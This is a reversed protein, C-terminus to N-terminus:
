RADIGSRAMYLLDNISIIKLLNKQELDQAAQDRMKDILLDETNSYNKIYYGSKEYKASYTGGNQYIADLITKVVDFDGMEISRAISFSKNKLTNSPNQFNAKHLYDYIKNEAVTRVKKKSVQGLLSVTRTMVFNKNEGVRVCYKAILEDVSMKSATILYKLTMMSMWADEESNHQDFEIGLEDAIRNLGRVEKEQKFLRYLLQSCIFKFNISPLKYRKCAANLMLVDSEVAHGVVRVDGTLLESIRSYAQEFDPSNELLDKDLHLDIGVNKRTGNLNYKTKPNIWINERHKIHFNEDAIVVGISCISYPKYGNAAEIDFALFDM